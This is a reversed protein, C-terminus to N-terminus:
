KVETVSARVTEKVKKRQSDSLTNNEELVKKHDVFSKMEFQKISLSPILTYLSTKMSAWRSQIDQSIKNKQDATEQIEKQLLLKESEQKQLIQLAPAFVFRRLVLYAIFFHLAQFILTINPANM